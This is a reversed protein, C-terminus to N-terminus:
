PSLRAAAKLANGETRALLVASTAAQYMAVMDAASELTVFGSDDMTSWTLPYPLSDRILFANSITTQSELSLSMKEGKFVFGAAIRAATMANIHEIKEDLPTPPPVFGNVDEVYGPACSEDDRLVRLVCGRFPGDTMTVCWEAFELEDAWDPGVLVTKVAGNEIAAVRSM